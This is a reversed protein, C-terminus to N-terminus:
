GFRLTFPLFLSLTIEIFRFINRLFVSMQSILTSTYIASPSFSSKVCIKEGSSLERRFSRKMEWGEKMIIIIKGWVKTEPSRIGPGFSSAVHRRRELFARPPVAGAQVEQMPFTFHWKPSSKKKGIADVQRFRDGKVDANVHTVVGRHKGRKRSLTWLQCINFVWMWPLCNNVKMLISDNPNWMFNSIFM